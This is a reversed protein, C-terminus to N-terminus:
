YKNSIAQLFGLSIFGTTLSSGGYSIFPLTIGTLPILKTVGGLIIFTQLGFMLTIGLAANKDFPEKAMLSIKVGRYVFIFFLFIVAIGGFVGMEECIASFIFDSHVEPILDPRGLGLGTGFFGGAGIAFLSQAVQYGRNSIDAWPNMWIDVRVRIHNMLLYSLVGGISAICANIAMVWVSSGSVFLFLFFVAFLLFATGLEKQLILFGIHCYSIVIFVLKHNICIERGMLKLGNIQLKEPNTYYSALLLIYLVKIIESAQISFDGIFIWNKAGKINKAFAMTFVFLGLAGGLYFFILKDWKAFRTYIFYCLFFLAIGLALWLIQKVALEKNIRYLMIIGLSVLMSVILFLYEDGHLLKLILAYTICILAIVALGSFVTAQAYPQRYLYLLFYGIINILIVPYIPKFYKTFGKMVM